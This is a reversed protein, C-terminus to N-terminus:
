RQRVGRSNVSNELLSPPSGLFKMVLRGHLKEPATRGNALNGCTVNSDRGHQYSEGIVEDRRSLDILTNQVEPDELAKLARPDELAALIAVGEVFVAAWRDRMVEHEERKQRTQFNQSLTETDSFLAVMLNVFLSGDNREEPSGVDRFRVKLARNLAKAFYTRYHDLDLLQWLRESWVEKSPEKISLIMKLLVEGNPVSYKSSPDERKGLLSMLLIEFFEPRVELLLAGLQIHAESENEQPFSLFDNAITDAVRPYKKILNRVHNMELEWQSPNESDPRLWRNRIAEVEWSAQVEEAQKRTLFFLRSTAIQSFPPVVTIGNGFTPPEIIAYSTTPSKGIEIRGVKIPYLSNGETFAPIFDRASVARIAPLIHSAAFETRKGRNGISASTEILPYGKGNEFPDM